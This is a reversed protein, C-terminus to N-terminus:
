GNISKNIEALVKNIYVLFLGDVSTSPLQSSESVYNPFHGDSFFVSIAFNQITNKKLNYIHTKIQVGESGKAAVACDNLQPYKPLM